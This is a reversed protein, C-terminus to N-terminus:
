KPLNQLAAAARLSGQAAAKALWERAKAPDKAIGDGDRYIEGLRLQAEVDGGAAARQYYAIAPQMEKARKEAAAAQRAAIEEATLPRAVSAATKAKQPNGPVALDYCAVGRQPHLFLRGNAVAPSTWERARIEATGLLKGDRVDLMAIRAGEDTMIFLKGDAVIPSTRRTPNIRSAWAVKGTQLDCCMIGSQSKNQENQNPEDKHSPDSGLIYLFRADGAPSSFDAGYHLHWIERPLGSFLDFGRLEGESFAALLDGSVV